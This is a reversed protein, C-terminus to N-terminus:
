ENHCYLHWTGIGRRRRVCARFVSLDVWLSQDLARSVVMRKQQTMWRGFSERHLAGAFPFGM